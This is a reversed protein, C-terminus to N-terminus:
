YSFQFATVAYCLDDCVYFGTNLNHSGMFTFCQYCAVGPYVTFSNINGFYGSILLQNNRYVDMEFDRFNSVPVDNLNIFYGEVTVENRSVDITIPIFRILDGMSPSSDKTDGRNRREEEKKATANAEASIDNTKNDTQNTQEAFACVTVSMLMLVALLLAVIRKM